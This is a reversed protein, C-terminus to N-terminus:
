EPKAPFAQTLAKRTLWYAPKHRIEPHDRLYAFVVDAYQIVSVNSDPSFGEGGPISDVVGMVYGLCMASGGIDKRNSYPDFTGDLNATVLVNWKECVGYLKNGDWLSYRSKTEWSPNTQASLASASLLLLTVAHAKM